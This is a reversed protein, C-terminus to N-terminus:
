HLAKIFARIKAQDKKGPREEVGSSVDVAYPHMRHVAEAVSDATLGGSVILPMGFRGAGSAWDWDFTKGTGGALGADFADLLIAGARFSGAHDLSARDKMSFAKICSPFFLEVEAPSERGHFQIVKIGCFDRIERIKEPTEDVFVGVTVAFPPLAAIIARADAPTVRRSSPAFVFGLADAGEELAMLADDVTTIGCIKVKVM